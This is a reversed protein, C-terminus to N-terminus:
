RGTELKNIFAAHFERFERYERFINRVYELREINEQKQRDRSLQRLRADPMGLYRFLARVLNYDEMKLYKKLIYAGVPVNVSPAFLKWKNSDSLGLKEGWTPFHIQMAGRADAHSVATVRFSSEVKQIAALLALPLGTKKAVRVTTDALLFSMERSQRPNNKVIYSYFALTDKDTSENPLAFTCVPFVFPLFLILLLFRNSIRM